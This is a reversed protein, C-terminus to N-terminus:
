LGIQKRLFAIDDQNRIEVWPAGTWQRTSRQEEFDLSRRGHQRLIWLLLSNRSAFTQRFTEQNGAFLKEGTWARQVSRKLARWLVVPVAPRMWVILTARPWVTPRMGSYNGDAVWTQADTARRVGAQFNEKPKPKWGPGWFLEDMEIHPQGLLRALERALTTKGSCSEGIVVIRRPDLRLPTSPIRTAPMAALTGFGGADGSTPIGPPAATGVM